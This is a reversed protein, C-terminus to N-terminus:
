RKLGSIEISYSQQGHLGSIITKCSLQDIKEHDMSPFDTLTRKMEQKSFDNAARPHKLIHIDFVRFTDM